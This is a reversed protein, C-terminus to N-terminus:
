LYPIQRRQRRWAIATDLAERIAESLAAPLAAFVGACRLAPRRNSM